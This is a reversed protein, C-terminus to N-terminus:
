WYESFVKSRFIHNPDFTDGTNLIEFLNQIFNIDHILTHNSKEPTQSDAPPFTM